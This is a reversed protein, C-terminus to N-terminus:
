ALILLRIYILTQHPKFFGPVVIGQIDQMALVPEIPGAIYQNGAM